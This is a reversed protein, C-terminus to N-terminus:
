NFQKLQLVGLYQSEKILATSHQRLSLRDNQKWRRDTGFKEPEM